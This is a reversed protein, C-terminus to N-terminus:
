TSSGDHLGLIFFEEGGLEGGPKLGEGPLVAKSEGGQQLAGPGYQEGAEGVLAVDDVAVDAGAALRQDGANLAHQAQQDGGGRRPDPETGGFRCKVEECAQLTLLRRKKGM